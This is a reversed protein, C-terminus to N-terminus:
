YAKKNFLIYGMNLALSFPDESQHYYNATISLPGLPSHFVVAASTLWNSTAFEAGYKARFNADQIIERVPNFMFGDLRLDLNQHLTFINRAGFAVFKHSRFEPLFLTTSEPTPEFATAHLMTAVYNSMFQQSSFSAHVTFGLTYWSTFDFFRDYKINLQLWRHKGSHVERIPSTSGPIHTENGAVYRLGAHFFRGKSPYQKANLTNHEYSIYPTVVDFTTQDTTDTRKFFNTQYYQDKMRALAIGWVVRAKNGHPLGMNIAWQNENQILYSPTIDEMFYTRRRFFDYQSFTITPEIFMPIKTSFDIRAGLQASSYFRGIYSNAWITAANKRLWKYNVGVFATNIPSSSVNGGFEVTFNRGLEVDVSLNFFQSSDCQRIQPFIHTFREDAILKFYELKLDDLHVSDGGYTLLRNVYIAQNENLGKVEIDSIILEPLSEKYKKRRQQLQDYPLTDFVFARIEPILKKAAIYGSDIFASTHSFDTVNVQRLHPRILVGNECPITYDTVDTLMAELQSFLDDHTIERAGAAVKSGIIMDPFFDDFMVDVPFNNYMGGDFMLRNNIRIPRFYFPFTMSARIANGLDGNRIAIARREEIDSVMCRFPVFLSDFNYNSAAAAAATKEMFVFDMQVPSVINVPIKPRILSDIQFNLKLWSANPAPQRFYFRYDDNITGTSWYHFEDSLLMEEMEDPSWGIAYLGGIIAGISTGTIYHIPIGEEELARIVGIHAAGKAGGGSLVLGVKQAQVPWIVASVIAIIIASRLHGAALQIYVM